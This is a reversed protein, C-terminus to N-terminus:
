WYTLPVVEGEVHRYLREVEPSAASLIGRTEIISQMSARTTFCGQGLMNTLKKQYELDNMGQHSGLWVCM